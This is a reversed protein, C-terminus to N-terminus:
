VRQSCIMKEKRRVIQCNRREQNDILTYTAASFIVTIVLLTQFLSVVDYETYLYSILCHCLYKRSEGSNYYINLGILSLARKVVCIMDFELLDISQLLVSFFMKKSIREWPNLKLNVWTTSFQFICSWCRFYDSKQWFQEHSYRFCYSEKQIGPKSYGLLVCFSTFPNSFRLLIFIM